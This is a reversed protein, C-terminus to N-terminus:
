EQPIGGLRSVEENILDIIQELEKNTDVIMDLRSQKENINFKIMEIFKKDNCLSEFNVPTAQKAWQFDKFHEMYYDFFEGARKVSIENHTFNMLKYNFSHLKQYRERLSDNSIIDFGITKLNDYATTNPMHLTYTPVWGFFYDLSDAAILCKELSFLVKKSSKIAMKHVYIPYEKNLDDLLNSKMQLLLKVERHKLKRGENWTNIQLAILIGIVVLAIEGVAYRMYKMPRNDDAMKKRIKRFFPIM